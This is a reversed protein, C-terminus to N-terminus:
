SFRRAHLQYVKEDWPSIPGLVEIDPVIDEIPFFNIPAKPAGFETLWQGLQKASSLYVINGLGAWGHAAACMPCHEGSTYVVCRKRQEPSLHNAAWRAISFEPHQTHDGGGVRNRDEFLIEGHEDVLVSGFPQDDALLAQEALELCRQFYKEQQHSM